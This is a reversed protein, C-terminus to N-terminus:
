NVLQLQSHGKRRGPTASFLYGSSPPGVEETELTLRDDAPKEIAVDDKLWQLTPLPLGKVEAPIDVCSGKKM